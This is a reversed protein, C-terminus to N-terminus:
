ESGSDHRLEWPQSNLNYLPKYFSFEFHTWSKTINPLNSTWHLKPDLHSNWIHKFNPKKLNQFMKLQKKNIINAFLKQHHKHPEFNLKPGFHSTPIHEFNSGRFNSTNSTWNKPTRDVEILSWRSRIVVKVIPCWSKCLTVLTVLYPLPVKEKKSDSNAM